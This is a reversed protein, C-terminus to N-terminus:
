GPEEPGFFEDVNPARRSLRENEALLERAAKALAPWATRADAAFQSDALQWGEDARSELVIREPAEGRVVVDGGGDVGWPGATAAKDHHEAIACLAEIEERTM